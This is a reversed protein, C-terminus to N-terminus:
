EFDRASPSAYLAAVDSGRFDLVAQRVTADLLDLLRVTGDVEAIADVRVLPARDPEGDAAVGGFRGAYDALARLKARGDAVFTGHPDVLAVGLQGDDRKSVIVFDVQVM